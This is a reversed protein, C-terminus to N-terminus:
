RQYIHRWSGGIIILAIGTLLFCVITPIAMGIEGGWSYLAYTEFFYGVAALVCVANIALGLSVVMIRILIPDIRLAIM